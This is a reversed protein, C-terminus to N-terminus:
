FARPLAFWASLVLVGGGGCLSCVVAVLAGAARKGFCLELIIGTIYHLFESVLSGGLNRKPTKPVKQLHADRGPGTDSVDVCM